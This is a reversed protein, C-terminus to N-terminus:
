WARMTRFFLACVRTGDLVAPIDSGPVGLGYSTGRLSGRRAPPSSTLRLIGLVHRRQLPGTVLVESDMRSLVELVDDDVVLLVRSLPNRQNVFLDLRVIRRVVLRLEDSSDLAHQCRKAPIPRRNTLCECLCPHWFHRGESTTPYILWCLLRIGYGRQNIVCVIIVFGWVGHALHFQSSSPLPITSSLSWSVGSIWSIVSSLVWPCRYRSSSHKL